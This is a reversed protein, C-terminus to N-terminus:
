LQHQNSSMGEKTELTHGWGQELAWISVSHATLPLRIKGAWLSVKARPSLLFAPRGLGDWVGAAVPGEERVLSQLSSGFGEVSIGFWHLTATLGLTPSQNSRCRSRGRRSAFGALVRGRLPKRSSEAGAAARVTLCGWSGAWNKLAGM